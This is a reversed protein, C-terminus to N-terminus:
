LSKIIRVATGDRASEVVFPLDHPGHEQRIAAIVRKDPVLVKPEGIQPRKGAIRCATSQFDVISALDDSDRLGFSAVRWAGKDPLGTGSHHIDAVINARNQVKGDPG